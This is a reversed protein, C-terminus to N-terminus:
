LIKKLIPQIVSEMVTYGEKTPHVGDKSYEAKMGKTDNVLAPYYNAFKFHNAEAYEAIWSNLAVIDDAPMLNPKWGFKNSPTVSCLVVKIKNAKALQAMSMINDEIMKLTSPGTNGAIDNTGCLIVVAQPKLELVDTRFRILMQPSTQGSIGRDVYHNDSFFGSSSNVWFDTISDGMFIAAVKTNDQKLKDNADRYRGLNPWDQANALTSFVMLLFFIKITAYKM